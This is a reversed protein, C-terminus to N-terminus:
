AYFETLLVEPLWLFQLYTRFVFQEPTEENRDFPFDNSISKEQVTSWAVRRSTELSHPLDALTAMGIQPHDHLTLFSRGAVAVGMV